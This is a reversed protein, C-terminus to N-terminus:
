FVEIKNMLALKQPQKLPLFYAFGNLFHERTFVKQVTQSCERSCNKQLQALPHLPAQNLVLAEIIM